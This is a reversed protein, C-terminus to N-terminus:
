PAPEILEPGNNRVSNVRDTVVRPTLVPEPIADLMEQVQEKDTTVPDLWDAYM